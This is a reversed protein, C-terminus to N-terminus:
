GKGILRRLKEDSGKVAKGDIIASDIVFNQNFLGGVVRVYSDFLFFNGNHLEVQFTANLPCSNEFGFLSINKVDYRGLFIRLGDVFNDMQTSAFFRELTITFGEDNCFGVIESHM